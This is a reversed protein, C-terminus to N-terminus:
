GSDKGSGHPDRDSDDREVLFLMQTAAQLRNAADGVFQDHHIGAAPVPGTRNGSSPAGSDVLAVPGIVGVLLVKRGRLSGVWPDEAQIGILTEAWRQSPLQQLHFGMRRRGVGILKWPSGEIEAAPNAMAAPIGVALGTQVPAAPPLPDSVEDVLMKGALVGYTAQLAIKEVVGAVRNGVM